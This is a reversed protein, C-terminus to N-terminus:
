AAETLVPEAFVGQGLTGGGAAVTVSVEIVDGAVYAAAGSLAGAVSGFAATASTLVVPASLMSVGNKLLDITVTAAGICAATLGAWFSTVTGPARARHVAKREAVAAVGFPQSLRPMFRHQLNPASVPNGPIMQGDGVSGPPLAVTGSFTVPGSFYQPDTSQTM